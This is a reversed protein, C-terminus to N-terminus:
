PRSTRGCTTRCSKRPDWWGTQHGRKLKSVKELVAAAKLQVVVPLHTRLAHGELVEIKGVTQALLTDIMFLDIKSEGKPTRCTTSEPEFVLLDRRGQAAEWLKEIKDKDNNHDGAVVFPKGHKEVHRALVQYM